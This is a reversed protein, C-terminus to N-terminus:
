SDELDERLVALLEGVPLFNEECWRLLCRRPKTALARYLSVAWRVWEGDRRALILTRYMLNTAKLTKADIPLNDALIIPQANAWITNIFDAAIKINSQLEANKGGVYICLAELQVLDRSQDQEFVSLLTSTNVFVYGHRREALYVVAEAYSETRMMGAQEAYFLAAQIWVGKTRFAEQSYQRIAIDESVLVRAEGAMIGVSFAGDPPICILKEGLDSLNDPLQVPEVSCREEIAEILSKATRIREARDKSTEVLRIFQGDRYDLRMTDGEGPAAHDETLERLRNLEHTPIALPGLLDELVPLVGLIAAHWATFADLVAGTQQHEQIVKLAEGREDPVGSCVKVEEGISGLYQAFGVAGGPRHGAAVVLPITHQLYVDAQQRVMASLRRVQELVPEIDDDAISLSVFERAEPFRQGFNAMLHHLAQLWWPKSEAVTWTEEVGLANTSKFEDGVKLGLSSSIFSNSVTIAQGWPRDHSEGVLAEYTEGKSSTLRVWTSTSVVDSTGLEPNLSTAKLVLALFKAVLEANTLDAILAKYATDLARVPESFDLLMHSLDIRDLPSGVLNEVESENVLKQIADQDDTAYYAQALCLLTHIQRDEGFAVLLPEIAGEPDGRNFHLIGELKQFFANCRVDPALDAFFKTARDRVPFDFALATALTRLEGSDRDSAVYGLLAKITVDLQERAIAEEALALRAVYTDDGNRFALTASEFLLQSVDEVEHTRASQALVTLARTNGEFDRHGKELLDRVGASKDLEMRAVVGMAKVVIQEPEPFQDLNEDALKLIKSWDKNAVAIKFRVAIVQTYDALGSILDSVQATDGQDILLSALHVKITEEDPFREHAQLGLSIAADGNGVVHYATMLNIPISSLDKSREVSRDQVKEWLLKYISIAENVDDFNTANLLQGYLYREGGITRSLLANAGLEQLAEIEPFQRYASIAADWWSCPKGREMLWQIHAEAVEPTNRSEEPILSIPDDISGDHILSQLYCAALRANSPQKRLGDEAFGRLHDWNDLLLFGLAKNAIAKPDEPAYDWASILGTAAEKNQGLELHCAAINTKIRFRIHNSADYALRKELKRLLELATDPKSPILEVYDNIHEEHESQVVSGAMAIESSKLSAVEQRIVEIEPSLVASVKEPIDGIAHEIQDIQPTYSPDFIKQAEPYRQIERQLKDWGFIHINLDLPRSQSIEISLERALSQLNADDPATTVIVYESLPPEFTLAKNVEDRVEQELLKHGNSKLKCQIGVLHAPDRNRCGVIDVGHQCQGRRGYKSAMPDNLICRWLVENCDEFDQEYLPKLTQTAKM